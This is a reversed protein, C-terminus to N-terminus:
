ITKTRQYAAELAADIVETLPGRRLEALGAASTGAYDIMEQVHAAPTKDELSMVTGAGLFLQRIARDAMAEPIGRRTAHLMMAEAFAAVFGPVPGTLATFRDILDERGVREVVGCAGFLRTVAAEDDDSLPALPVWPTFALRLAAVPSSMARVIRAGGTTRQLQDLTVGAMVSIVLKGGAAIRLRRGREPPVSLVIVECTECLDAPDATTRIEGWRALPGLSGTTNAIWLQEPLVTRTEIWARALASGLQGTGGVIGVRM